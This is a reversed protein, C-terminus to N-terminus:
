ALMKDRAGDAVIQGRELVVIRDVHALLKTSHTVVVLTKGATFRDIAAVFRAESEADIGSTPEDLLYVAAEKGLARALGVAQTQGGSLAGARVVRDLSLGGGRMIQTIAADDLVERQRSTPDSDTGAFLNEMLSGSILAPAQQKYALWRVKDEPAMASVALGDILVRGESPDILGAMCRLLTSKGSGPRGVVAVREGPRIRINLGDLAHGGGPLRCVLQEVVLDGRVDHRVFAGQGETPKPASADLEARTRRLERLGFLMGASSSALGVARLNLLSGAVLAGVTLTGAQIAYVGVVLVAVSSLAVCLGGWAQGASQWYRMRARSIAAQTSLGEWRAELMRRLGGLRVVDAAEIAEGILQNKGALSDAHRSGYDRAPIQLLAHGALLPICTALCVWGVPGAVAFATAVFLVMFPLDAAAVAYAAHLHDRAVAHDRLRSMLVGAPALSLSPADLLRQLLSREFTTDAVVSMAELMSGRVLRLVFEIGIVLLMGLTLAWLTAVNDAGVVNNYIISSFVPVALACANVLLSCLGVEVIRPSVRALARVYTPAVPEHVYPSRM